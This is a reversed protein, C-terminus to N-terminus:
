FIKASIKDFSAPMIVCDNSCVNSNVFKSFKLEQRRLSLFM